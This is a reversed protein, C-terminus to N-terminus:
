LRDAHTNLKKAGRGQAENINYIIKLLCVACVINLIYPALGIYLMQLYNEVALQYQMSTQATGVANNAQETMSEIIKGIPKSFIFTFWWIVLVAASRKQGAIMLSGRWIQAMAKYPMVLNAFPVAYWGVSWGPSITIGPAGLTRAAENASIIWMSVPIASIWFLIGPINSYAPDDFFEVRKHYAQLAANNGQAISQAVATQLGDVLYITRIFDALISLLLLGTIVTIYCIFM